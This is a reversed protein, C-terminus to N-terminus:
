GLHFFRRLDALYCEMQKPDDFNVPERPLHSRPKRKRRLPPYTKRHGSVEFRATRTKPRLHKKSNKVMADEEITEPESSDKLAL